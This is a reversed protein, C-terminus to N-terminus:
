RQFTSQNSVIVFSTGGFVVTSISFKSSLVSVNKIFFLNTDYICQEYPVIYIQLKVCFAQIQKSGMWRATKSAWYTLRENHLYFRQLELTFFYQCMFKLKTSLTINTKHHPLRRVNVPHPFITRYEISLASFHEGESTWSLMGIKCTEWFCTKVM